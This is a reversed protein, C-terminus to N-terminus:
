YQSPSEFYSFTSIGLCLRQFMTGGEVVIGHGVAKVSLSSSVPLTVKGSLEFQIRVKAGRHRSLEGHIGVSHKKTTVHVNLRM